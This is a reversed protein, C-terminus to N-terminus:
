GWIEWAASRTDPTPSFAAEGVHANGAGGMVLQGGGTLVTDADLQLRTANGGSNLTITGQNTLTGSSHLFSDNDVVTAGSHLLNAWFVNQGGLVRIVGDGVTTLTGGTISANTHLQVESGAMARIIGGTNDFVGGGSGTLQLIGGGSAQMTGQNVLGGSSRPDMLLVRTAVNAEVIGGSQNTLSLENAGVNGWGEIHNGANILSGGGRLRAGAQLRITGGGSLSTDAAAIYLDTANGTAGLWLLGENHLATGELTLSSNNGIVLSDGADISLTLASRGLSDGITVVSNQANGGDIIVDAGANPVGGDWNTGTDWNGAGAGIWTTAGLLPSCLAPLFAAAALRIAGHFRCLPNLQPIM